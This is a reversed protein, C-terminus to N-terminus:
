KKKISKVVVLWEYSGCLAKSYFKTLKFYHIIKSNEYREYNFM